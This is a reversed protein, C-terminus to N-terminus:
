GDRTRSNRALLAASIRAKTEESHVRGTKGLLSQRIKAKTEESRKQGTNAAATRAVAEPPQTKGRRSNGVKTRSEETWTRRRNADGVRRNWEESHPKGKHAASQKQRTELSLKGGLGGTTLNYGNPAVSGFHAVWFSEKRDLEDQDTATDVVEWTFALIGYKKLARSFAWPELGASRIHASWRRRVPGTTQGVYRKGNQTNTVAYVVGYPPETM